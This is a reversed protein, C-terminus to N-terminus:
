TGKKRLTYGMRFAISRLVELDDMSNSMTHSPLVRGLSGDVLIARAVSNHHTEIVKAAGCSPGVDISGPGGAYFRAIVNSMTEGFNPDNKIDHLYDHLVLVTSINGM